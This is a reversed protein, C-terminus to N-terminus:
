GYDKFFNPFYTSVEEVINCEDEDKPVYTVAYVTELFALSPNKELAVKILRIAEKELTEASMEGDPWEELCTALYGNHWDPLFHEYSMGHNNFGFQKHCM